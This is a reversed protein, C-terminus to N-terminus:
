IQHLTTSISIRSGGGSVVPEKWKAESKFNELNKMMKVKAEDVLYKERGKLELVYRISYNKELFKFIKNHKVELDHNDINFGYRIEKLHQHSKQNKKKKKGRDYMLKGYDMLKCISLGGSNKSVEVVDLGEEEAIKLAQLLPIEENMTGDLMVLNIKSAEIQNNINYGREM